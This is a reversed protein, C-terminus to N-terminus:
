KAEILALTAVLDKVPESTPTKQLYYSAVEVPKEDAAIMDIIYGQSEPDSIGHTKLIQRAKNISTTVLKSPDGGAITAIDDTANVMIITGGMIQAITDADAGNLHVKYM